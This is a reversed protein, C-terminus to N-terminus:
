VASLPMAYLLADDANPVDALDIPLMRASAHDSNLIIVRPEMAEVGSEVHQHGLCFLRVNWAAALADIVDTNYGRGWTMLYAHGDPRIRDADVLDRDLITPDFRDFTAANPLSHACLVGPNDEDGSRVALPMAAIFDCVATEVRDGDDGFTFHIADKFNKVSNGAGKSVGAGTLQSLEHNALMPHVQQPFERVLEAVRALMRHSFDMGNLLQEGHILEHLVVHHDASQELRAYQVIARLHFQNDHLDGTALLRGHPPLNVACGRRLPSTLMARTASEFLAIIDDANTWAAATSM